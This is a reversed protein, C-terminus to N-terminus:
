RQPPVGPGAAQLHPRGAGNFGPTGCCFARIGVDARACAGGRSVKGEAALSNQNQAALAPYDNCPPRNRSPLLANLTM